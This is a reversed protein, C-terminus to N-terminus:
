YRRLRDPAAEFGLLVDRRGILAEIKELGPLALDTDAIVGLGADGDGAIALAPRKQQYREREPALVTNACQREHAALVGGEVHREPVAVKDGVGGVEVGEHGTQAGM